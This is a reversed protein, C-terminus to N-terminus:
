MKDRQCLEGGPSEQAAWTEPESQREGHYEEPGRDPKSAILSRDSNCAGQEESHPFSFVFTAGIIGECRCRRYQNATRHPLWTKGCPNGNAHSPRFRTRQIWASCTRLRHM